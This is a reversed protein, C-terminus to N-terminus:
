QPFLFDRGLFGIEILAPEHEEKLFDGVERVVFVFLGLGVKGFVSIALAIL